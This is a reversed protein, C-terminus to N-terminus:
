FLVLFYRSISLLSMGLMLWIGATSFFALLKGRMGMVTSSRHLYFMNPNQRLLYAMGFLGAVIYILYVSNYFLLQTDASLNVAIATLLVSAANNVFHILMGTRLSGTHLVFYGIAMGSLFAMPAQVLNGHVIGFLLSSILLAFSDGFRRLSQMIAGRFVLEEVVAPLVANSLFFLTFSFVGVPPTFDPSVPLLGVSAFVSAIATSCSAGVVSVMLTVPVAALAVQMKSPRQMPFASQQPIRIYKCYLVAPVLLALTYAAMNALASVSTFDLYFLLGKRSATLVGFILNYLIGAGALFALLMFGINSSYHRIMRREYAERPPPAFGYGAVYTYGGPDPNGAMPDRYLDYFGSNQKGQMM